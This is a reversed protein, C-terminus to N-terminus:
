NYCGANIHGRVTRVQGVTVKVKNAIWDSTKGKAVWTQIRGVQKMTVKPPRTTTTNSTKAKPLAM